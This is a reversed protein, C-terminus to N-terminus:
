RARAIKFPNEAFAAVIITKDAQNVGTVNTRLKFGNSLIDIMDTTAEANVKNGYLPDNDVNYGERKSDFITWNHSSSSQDANKLMIFAPRFGLYVFKASSGNQGNGEFSTFASYGPVSTFSYALIPQNGGVMLTTPYTFVSSTPAVSFESTAAANTSNFLIFKAGLDKHYVYWNSNVNKHKFMVFEPKANM